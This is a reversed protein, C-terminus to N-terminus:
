PQCPEGVSCKFHAVGTKRHEEPANKLFYLATHHYGPFANSERDECVTDVVLNTTLCRTDTWFLKEHRDYYELTLTYPPTDGQIECTIDGTNPIGCNAPVDQDNQDLEAVEGDLGRLPEDIKTSNFCQCAFGAFGIASTVWCAM